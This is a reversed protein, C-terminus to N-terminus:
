SVRLEIGPHQQKIRTVDVHPVNQLILHRLNPLPTLDLGALRPAGEIHLKVLEQHSRLHDADVLDPAYSIRLTKVHPCNQIGDLSRLGSASAISLYVLRPPLFRLDPVRGDLSISLDELKQLQRLLKYDFDTWSAGSAFLGTLNTAKTLFDFSPIDTDSIYLSRLHPATDMFTAGGKVSGFVRMEDLRDAPLATLDSLETCYWADFKRLTLDTLGALSTIQPCSHLWMADLALGDPLGAVSTLAPADRITLHRLNVLRSLAALSTLNPDSTITLGVIRAEGGIREYDINPGSVELTIEHLHRLPALFPLYSEDRFSLTGRELPSDALVQEAYEPKPFNRWGRILERAVTIRKDTSFARLAEMAADGGISALTRVTAAAQTATLQTLRRLYPIATAGAAALGRADGMSRPPVLDAFCGEVATRTTPTLEPSTELCAVALLHLRHRLHPKAGRELLGTILQERQRLSAHGAAMVIAERWTDAAGKGILMPLHGDDVAVKAALYEQFTKHVFDVSGSSPERLVGSRLVLHDLVAPAPQTIQPMLELRQGIQQEVIGREAESQENLQFWWAIAQLLSLKERLTLRPADGPDIRLEQDRRELLMELAVQYLHMRDRPVSGRMSRNLACIMACLLPNTALQRLPPDNGLRGVLPDGLARLRAGEEPDDVASSAAEHWHRVFKEIDSLSMPELAFTWYGEAALWGDDVAAPRSTVVTRVAPFDEQLGTLWERVAPREESPLEDLGDILLLCRGQDLLRNVWGPPMRDVLNPAVASLFEGPRPLDKGRYGRLRLFIPVLGNWSQLPPDFANKAARVALWQLLTTKGSGAEGKILTRPSMALLEDVRSLETNAGSPAYQQLAAAGASLVIVHDNLAQLENVHSSRAQSGFLRALNSSDDLDHLIETIMPRIASRLGGAALQLVQLDADHQSKHGGLTAIFSHAWAKADPKASRSRDATLTIYAISLAYRAQSGGLELGYLQLWDLKRVVHPRYRQLFDEDSGQPDLKASLAPMEDLVRKILTLLETDRTLLERAAVSQFDPLSLVLDIVYNSTDRILREAFVTASLSLSARERRFEPDALLLTELKAPDLDLELFGATGLDSSALLDAVALTAAERENPELGGYEAALVPELKGGLKDALDELRRRARDRRKLQPFKGALLTDFDTGGRFTQGYKRAWTKYVLSSAAMALRLVTGESVM